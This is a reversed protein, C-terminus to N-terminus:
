SMFSDIKRQWDLPKPKLFHYERIHIFTPLLHSPVVDDDIAQSIIDFSTLGFVDSAFPDAGSDLLVTIKKTIQEPGWMPDEESAVRVMQEV